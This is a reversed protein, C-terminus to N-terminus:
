NKDKTRWTNDYGLNCVCAIFSANLNRGKKLTLAAETLILGLASVNKPTLLISSAPLSGVGPVGGSSGTM